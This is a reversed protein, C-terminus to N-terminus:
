AEVEKLTQAVVNAIFRQFQPTKAMELLLALSGGPIPMSGLQMVNQDQDLSARVLSAIESLAGTAEDTLKVSAQFKDLAANVSGDQVSGRIASKVRATLTTAKEEKEATDNPAGELRDDTKETDGTEKNEPVSSAQARRFRRSDGIDTPPTEAKAELADLRSSVRGYSDEIRKMNRELRQMILNQQSIADHIAQLDM